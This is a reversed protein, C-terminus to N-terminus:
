RTGEKSEATGVGEALAAGCRACFYDDPQHPAGCQPCTDALSAGCAACFVDGPQYPQGCDLCALARRDAAETRKILSAIETEVAEALEVSYGDPSSGGKDRARLEAVAREIEADLAAEAEPALSDLQRLVQAAEAMYRARVMQYDDEALKGTERDFEADKLAAYIADRRITLEDITPGATDMGARSRSDRDKADFLPRFVYALTGVILLAILVFPIITLGSVEQSM